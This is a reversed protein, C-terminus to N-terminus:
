GRGDVAGRSTAVGATGYGAVARRGRGLLSLDARTSEVASRLAAVNAAVVRHAEELLALAELPAQAPLGATAARREDELAPLDAWRGAGILEGERRAIAVLRAYGDPLPM